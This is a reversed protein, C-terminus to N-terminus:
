QQSLLHGLDPLNIDVASLFRIADEFTSARYYQVRAIGAIAAALFKAFPDENGYVVLWKVKPHKVFQGAETFLKVSKLMKGQNSEDVFIHITSSSSSEILELVKASTEQVVELTVDGNVKILLIKHDVLWKIENLM